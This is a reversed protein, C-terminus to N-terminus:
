EYIDNGGYINRNINTFSNSSLYNEQKCIMKNTRLEKGTDTKILAENMIKYANNDRIRTKIKLVTKQNPQLITKVSITQNSEIKVNNIICEEIELANPIMDTILVNNSNKGQNEVEITYTIFESDFNQTMNVSIKDKEVTNIIENSKQGDVIYYSKLTQKTDEKVKCQINFIIAENQKLLNEEITIINNNINYDLKENKELINGNITDMKETDIKIYEITSPLYVIIKTNNKISNSVNTVSGTYLIKDNKKLTEDETRSCKYELRYDAKIIKIKSDNSEITKELNDATLTAKTRIELEQTNYLPNITLIYEISKSEGAEIREINWELEKKNADIIYSKDNGIKIEETYITNEPITDIIKANNIAENKNNIITIKYTIRQLENVLYEGDSTEKIINVDNPNIVINNVDQFTQPMQVPEQKELIKGSVYSSIVSTNMITMIIVIITALIINSLQNNIKKMEENAM